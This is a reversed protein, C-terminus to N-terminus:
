CFLWLSHSFYSRHELMFKLTIILAIGTFFFHNISMKCWEYCFLVSTVVICLFLHWCDELFKFVDKMRMNWLFFIHFRMCLNGFTVRVVFHNKGLFSLLFICKHDDWQCGEFIVFPQLLASLCQKFVKSESFNSLLNVRSLHWVVSLCFSLAHLATLIFMYWFLFLDIAHQHWEHGHFCFLYTRTGPSWCKYSTSSLEMCLETHCIGLVVYIRDIRSQFMQFQGLGWAHSM